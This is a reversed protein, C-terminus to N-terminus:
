TIKSTKSDRGSQCCEDEFSVQWVGIVFHSMEDRPNLVLSPAYRSFTLFKFSQHEVSMNGIKLNMFEVKIQIRQRPFYMSIFTEKFEEFEIPGSVEM